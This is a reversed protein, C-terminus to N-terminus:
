CCFVEFHFKLVLTSAKNDINLVCKWSPKGKCGLILFKLVVNRM